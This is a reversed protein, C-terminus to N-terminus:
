ASEPDSPSIVKPAKRRAELEEAGDLADLYDRVARTPREVAKWDIKEPGIGHLITM